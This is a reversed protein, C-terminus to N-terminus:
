SGGVQRRSSDHLLNPHHHGASCLHNQWQYTQHLWLHGSRSAPAGSGTVAPQHRGWHSIWWLPAVVGVRIQQMAATKSLHPPPTLMVFARSHGFVHTTASERSQGRFALWWSSRSTEIPIKLVGCRFRKQDRSQKLLIPIPLPRPAPIPYETRKGSTMGMATVATRWLSRPSRQSFELVNCPRVRFM